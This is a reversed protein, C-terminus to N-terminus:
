AAKRLEMLVFWAQWRLGPISLLIKDLGQALAYGAAFVPTARLPTMGLTTFGDFRLKVDGFYRRALAIDRRLIPHEDPTRAQPTKSRYWNILWNHGLPEWMVARGGPRLVRAIESYARELDLHHLIGSGFVLDFSADPLTMAEANMVQFDCNAIGREAALEDAQGIGVESIDIGVVSKARPALAVSRQGKACGYELVDAGIALEAVRANYAAFAHQITAYFKGQAERVEETFRANHFDQERAIRDQSDPASM